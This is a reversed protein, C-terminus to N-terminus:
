REGWAWQVFERLDSWITNDFTLGASPMGQLLGDVYEDGMDFDGFTYESRVGVHWRAYPKNNNGQWSKLLKYEWGTVPDIWQAYPNNM